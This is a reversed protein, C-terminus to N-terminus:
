KIPITNSPSAVLQQEQNQAQTSCSIGAMVPLFAWLAMSIFKSQM